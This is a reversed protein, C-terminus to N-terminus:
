YSSIFKKRFICARIASSSRCSVNKSHIFHNYLDSQLPTLKCCVVEVMQLYFLVHLRIFCFSIKESFLFFFACLFFIVLHCVLCASRRHCTIQYCHMLGGCYSSYIFPSSNLSFIFYLHMKRSCSQTSGMMVQFYINM